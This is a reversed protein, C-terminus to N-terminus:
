FQYTRRESRELVTHKNQTRGGVGGRGPGAGNRRFDQFILFILFIEAKWLIKMKHFIKSFLSFLNKGISSIKSLIKKRRINWSKGYSQVVCKGIAWIESVQPQMSRTIPGRLEHDGPVAHECSSDSDQERFISRMECFDQRCAKCM